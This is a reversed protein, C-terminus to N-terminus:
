ARRAARHRDGRASRSLETKASAAKTTAPRVPLENAEEALEFLRRLLLICARLEEPKETLGQALSMGRASWVILRMAALLTSDDGTIFEKVHEFGDREILIQTSWLRKALSPDSRAGLYIELVAIGAPQSLVTWIVEPFESLKHGGTPQARLLPGYDHLENEYVWKVIELMLEERTGFQHLISGRSIGAEEAILATTAGSYGIRTLVRIAAEILAKRTGATREAQTRRKRPKTAKM